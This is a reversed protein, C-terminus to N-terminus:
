KHSSLLAFARAEAPAQGLMDACLAKAWDTGPHREAALTLLDTGKAAGACLAKVAAHAQPRPMQRALAFSLAEALIVGQGVDLGRQM